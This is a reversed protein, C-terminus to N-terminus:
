LLPSTYCEPRNIPREYSIAWQELDDYSVDLVRKNFEATFEAIASDPWEIFTAMVRQCLEQSPINVIAGSALGCELMANERIYIGDGDHYDNSGDSFFADLLLGANEDKSRSSNWEFNKGWYYDRVYEYLGANELASYHDENAVPYSDLAQKWEYAAIAANTPRQLKLNDGAYARVVVYEVWGVAWHGARVIETSRPFRKLMDESIVEFNSRALIGSDRHQAILFFKSVGITEDDFYADTTVQSHTDKIAKRIYQREATDTFAFRGNAKRFKFM